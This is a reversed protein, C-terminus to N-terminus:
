EKVWCATCSPSQGRTVTTRVHSPREFLNAAAYPSATVPVILTVVRHAVRPSSTSRTDRFAVLADAYRPMGGFRATSSPM